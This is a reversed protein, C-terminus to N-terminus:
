KANQVIIIGIIQANNCVSVNNLSIEVNKMANQSLKADKSIQECRATQLKNAKVNTNQQCEYINCLVILCICKCLFIEEAAASSFVDTKIYLYFSAFNRFGSQTGAANAFFAM